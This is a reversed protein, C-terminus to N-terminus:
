EELMQLNKIAEPLNGAKRFWSAAASFDGEQAALVGRANMAEPSDGAKELLAAARTRDGAKLATVAANLNAVPDSPYYKLTTAIVRDFDASGEPYLRAVRYMQNLSLMEPETKIIEALQEDPMPKLRTSIAFETARLHPFWKPLITSAYLKAFKPSTKLEREKADYDAPGYAPRDILELLDRRQEPTIDSANVVQERFETWNEPVASYRAAEAPLSYHDALYDALAKSRNTALYDNHAYPSEPSAYGTVTISEIEVNPDSLAYRVSDDIMALQARNDILQNGRQTRYPETHLVTKDVEFQVRARGKHIRVPQTTAEPTVQVLRMRPAPNFDAPIEVPTESGAPVGCGCSDVVLKIRTGDAYMWQRFPTQASYELSQAKGNERRIEYAVSSYNESVPMTGRLYGYHMNRGNVLVSPLLVTNSGNEVVPTVYLQQNSGLRLSDLVLDFRVDIMNNVRAKRFNATGIGAMAPMALAAIMAAFLSKKMNM